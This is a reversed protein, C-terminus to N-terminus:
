RQDALRKNSNNLEGMIHLMARRQEDRKHLRLELEAIHRRLRANEEAPTEGDGAARSHHLAAFSAGPPDDDSPIAEIRQRPGRGDPRSRLAPPVSM